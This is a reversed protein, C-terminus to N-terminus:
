MAEKQYQKARRRIDLEHLVLVVHDNSKIRFLVRIETWYGLIASSEADRVAREYTSFHTNPRQYWGREKNFMVVRFRRSGM